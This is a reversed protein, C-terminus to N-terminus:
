PVDVRQLGGSTVWGFFAHRAPSYTLGAVLDDTLPSTLPFAPQLATPIAQGPTFLTVENETNISAFRGDPLAVPSVSWILGGPVLVSWTQGFDTSTLLGGDTENFFSWYLVGNILTPPGFVKYNSAVETWTAGGDTTRFIGPTGGVARNGTDYTGDIAFSCGVLYTTSNIIFPYESNARGGPLSAGINSWTAGGDTSKYVAQPMEHQGILITDSASDISMGDIEYPFTGVAHSQFTDGGDHTSFLGGTGGAFVGYIWFIRGSADKPDFTIGIPAVTLPESGAGQGLPQWTVGGDVSSYPLTTYYSVPAPIGSLAIIKDQGPVVAATAVYNGPFGTALDEWGGPASSSSYSYSSSSVSSSSVTSSSSTSASAQPAGGILGLDGNGCNNLILTGLAVSVLYALLRKWDSRGSRDLSGQPTM